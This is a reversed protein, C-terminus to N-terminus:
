RDKGAFPGGIESRALQDGVGAQGEIPATLAARKPEGSQTWAWISRDLARFRLGLQKSQVMSETFPQLYFCDLKRVGRDAAEFTRGFRL